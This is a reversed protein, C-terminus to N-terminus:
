GASDGNVAWGGFAIKEGTIQGICFLAFFTKLTKFDANNRTM